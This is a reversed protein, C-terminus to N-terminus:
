LLVFWEMSHWSAPLRGSLGSDPSFCKQPRSKVDLKSLYVPPQSTMILNIADDISIYHLSFPEAPIGDNVSAGEPSSLHHIMRLKGNKKPVAGVGSFHMFQFPPSPFPGATEGRACSATLHESIFDAHDAASPLNASRVSIDRQGSFGISFGNRLGDLLSSVFHKDPYNSLLHAFRDVHM